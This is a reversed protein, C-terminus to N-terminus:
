TICISTSAHGWYAYRMATEIICMDIHCNLSHGATWQILVLLFLGIAGHIFAHGCQEPSNWQMNRDTLHSSTMLNKTSL